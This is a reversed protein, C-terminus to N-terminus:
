GALAGVLLLAAYFVVNEVLSPGAAKPADGSESFTTTVSHPPPPSAESCSTHIHYADDWRRETERSQQTERFLLCRSLLPRAGAGKGTM